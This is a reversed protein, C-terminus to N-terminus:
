SEGSLQLSTPTQQLVDDDRAPRIVSLGIAIAAKDAATLDPEIVLDIL